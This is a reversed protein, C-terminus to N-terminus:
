KKETLARRRELLKKKKNKRSVYWFILLGIIVIVVIWTVIPSGQSSSNTAAFYKGDYTVNEQTSRRVGAQDTYSVKLTINGTTPTATFDATTYENSDLDGVINVNSGDIQINNQSPIEITVAKVNVKAVNLIQFTLTNTAADYNKVYVEFNARSDQVSVNFTQSLFGEPINTNSGASYYATVEANGDPADKNVSLTYPIQWDNNFNQTYASGALTRMSNNQTLSFAYGPDLKFVAGGCEPNSVGSVQFLLKVTDGQVATYPDQNVLSVQLNCASAFVGALSLIMVTTAFLFMVSKKM